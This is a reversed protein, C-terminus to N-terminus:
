EVKTVMYANFLVPDRSAALELAERNVRTMYTVGDDDQSRASEVLGEATDSVHVTFRDTELKVMKGAVASPKCVPCPQIYTLQEDVIEVPQGYKCGDFNHFVTTRGVKQLIYKKARTRWIRTETWRLSDRERTTALGLEVGEFRVERGGDDRIRYSQM